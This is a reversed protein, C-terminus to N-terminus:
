ALRVHAPHAVMLGQFREGRPVVLEGCTVKAMKRGSRYSLLSLPEMLQILPNSSIAITPDGIRLSMVDDDFCHITASQRSRLNGVDKMFPSLRLM